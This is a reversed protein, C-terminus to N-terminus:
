IGWGLGYNKVTNLMLDLNRFLGQMLYGTAYVDHSVLVKRKKKRKALSKREKKILNKNEVTASNKHM